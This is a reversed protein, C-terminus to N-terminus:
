PLTMFQLNDFSPISVANPAVVIEIRSAGVPLKATEQPSLDIQWKVM